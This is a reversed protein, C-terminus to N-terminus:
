EPAEPEVRSVDVFNTVPVWALEFGLKKGLKKSVPAKQSLVQSLTAPSMLLSTAAETHTKFRNVHNRLKELVVHENVRGQSM